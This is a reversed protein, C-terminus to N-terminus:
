HVEFFRFLSFCVPFLFLFSLLFAMRLSLLSFLCLIEVLLPQAAEPGVHPKGVLRDRDRGLELGVDDVHLAAVTLSVM